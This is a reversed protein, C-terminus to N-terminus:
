GSLPLLSGFSERVLPDFGVPLLGSADAFDRLSVTLYVLEDNDPANDRVVEELQWVNWQTEAAVPAPAPTRSVLRRRPPSPPPAAVAPQETPVARRVTVLSSPEPEHALQYQSLAPEGWTDDAGASPRHAAVARTTWPGSLLRECAAVIVWAGFVVAAIIWPSLGAVGTGAAVGVLLVAWLVFRPL